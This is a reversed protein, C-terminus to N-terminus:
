RALHRAFNIIHKSIFLFFRSLPTRMRYDSNHGCTGCCRKIGPTRLHWLKRIITGTGNFCASENTHMRVFSAGLTPIEVSALLLKVIRPCNLSNQMAWNPSETALKQLKYRGFLPTWLKRDGWQRITAGLIRGPRSAASDPTLSQLLREQKLGLLSELSSNSFTALRKTARQRLARDPAKQLCCIWSTVFTASGGSALDMGPARSILCDRLVATRSCPVKQKSWVSM